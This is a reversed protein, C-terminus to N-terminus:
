LGSPKRLVVSVPSGFRVPTDASPRQVIVTGNGTARLILGVAKVAQEAETLTMDILDPVLIAPYQARVSFGGGPVAGVVTLQFVSNKYIQNVGLAVPTRLHVPAWVAENIEYVVIGESPINAEFVDTKLRAEILFYRGPDASPVRIATVRGTPSPRPLGLAHLTVNEDGGLNLDVIETPDLWGLQLKTYTSPHSGCACSMNDFSGPDGDSTYYLDGFFTLIHTHEMAWAGVGSGFWDYCFNTVNTNAVVPGEYFAWDRAGPLPPFVVCANQFNTNAMAQSIAGNAWNGPDFQGPTTSIEVPDFVTPEITARGYSASFFYARLSRDVGNADPDLLLRRIVQEKFDAPPVLRPDGTPIAPVYGVAIAGVWTRM